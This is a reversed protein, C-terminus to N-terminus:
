RHNLRGGFPLRRIEFRAGDSLGLEIEGGSEDLMGPEIRLQGGTHGVALATRRQAVHTVTARPWRQADWRLLWGGADAVLSPEAGANLSSIGSRPATLAVAQQHVLSSGRYLEISSVEGLAPVALTFHGRGHEHDVEQPTFRLSHTRGDAFVVRVRHTGQDADPQGVFAALPQLSVRGNDIQGQLLWMPQGPAAVAAAQAGATGLDDLPNRGLYSHVQDYTWDSVWSPSCYSMLDKTGAPDFFNGSRQDYGWVTGLTGGAHPYASDGSVGCPTHPRGFNHGKEHLFTGRWGTQGAARPARGVSTAGPVYGMGVTGWYDVKPIFGYYHQGTSGELRRLSAIESLLKGWAGSGGENAATIAETVTTSTYPARRTIRVDTLPYTALLADRVEADPPVLATDGAITVPVLTLRLVQARAVTPTLALRADAPTPDDYAQGPDVTVQLKVGPRVWEAQLTYRYGTGNPASAATPALAPGNMLAGVPNLQRGGADTVVIGVQVPVAQSAVLNLRLGVARGSVLPRASGTVPTLVPHLWDAGDIRFDVRPKPASV